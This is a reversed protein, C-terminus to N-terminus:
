VRYRALFGACRPNRALIHIYDYLYNESTTAPALVDVEIDEQLLFFGVTIPFFCQVEEICMTALVPKAGVKEEEQFHSRDLIRRYILVINEVGQM